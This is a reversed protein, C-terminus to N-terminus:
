VSEALANLLVINEKLRYFRRRDIAAVVLVLEFHDLLRAATQRGQQPVLRLRTAMRRIIELASRRVLRHGLNVLSTICWCHICQYLSSFDAGILASKIDLLM